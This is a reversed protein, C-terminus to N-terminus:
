PHKSSPRHPEPNGLHSASECRRPGSISASRRSGPAPKVTWPPAIALTTGLGGPPSHDVSALGRFARSAGGGGPGRPPQCRGHPQHLADGRRTDRHGTPGALRIRSLSSLTYPNNSVQILQADTIPGDPSDVTLGFPAADPGLLDPLMEAVTRRKAERYGDSRWSGHTSASRCM